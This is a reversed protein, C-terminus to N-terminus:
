AVLEMCKAMTVRDRENIQKVEIINFIRASSVEQIRQRPTLGSYHRMIIIHTIVAETADARIFERGAAPQLDAWRTADTAWTQPLFGGHATRTDTPSQVNVRVRLKGAHIIPTKVVHNGM